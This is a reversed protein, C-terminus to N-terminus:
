SVVHASHDIGSNDALSSMFGLLGFFIALQQGVLFVIAIVGAIAGMATAREHFLMKFAAYKRM